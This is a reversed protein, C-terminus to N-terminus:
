NTPKFISSNPNLDRARRFSALSDRVLGLRADIEAVVFWNQWADPEVEIAKLAAARAKKFSGGTDLVLAQQRWATASYPQWATASRAKSLADPLNGQLAGSRSQNVLSSAVTPPVALVMVALAFGAASSRWKLSLERARKQDPAMLAALVFMAALPIVTEQWTWDGVTSLFFAFLSASCAAALGLEEGSERIARSCAAAMLSVFGIILALGVLGLEAYVEAYLSHANRVKIASGYRVWWLEFFGAGQGRLPHEDGANIAGQWLQWRGNSSTASLRDISNARGPALHTETSRFSDLTQGAWGLGGAVIFVVAFAALGGGYVALRLRPRPRASSKRVFIKSRGIVVSLAAAISSALILIVGVTAAGNARGGLGITQDMLEPSGLVPIVVTASCVLLLTHTALVRRSLPGLILGAVLGIAAVLLGGRSITFFVCLVVTPFALAALARAILRRSEGAFHALLPLGMACLFALANWYGIPWFSRASFGYTKAQAAPGTILSPDLRAGVAMAAILAIGGAVGGVVASRDPRRLVLVMLVLVSTVAVMQVAAAVTREPAGSWLLSVLMWGTLLTMAALLAWQLRSPRVAPVLGILAGILILWAAGIAIEGTAPLEYGGHHYGILAVVLAIGSAILLNRLDRGNRNPAEAALAASQLSPYDSDTM